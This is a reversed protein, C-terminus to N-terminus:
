LRTADTISKHQITIDLRDRLHPKAMDDLTITELAKYITQNILRWNVRVACYSELTCLGKHHSCDTMSINGEIASIIDVVSIKKPHRALRYGGNAGRESVVLGYKALLKLLKSVTPQNVHIGEAVDRANYVSFENYHRAMYVMILTGYDALKSLKLM